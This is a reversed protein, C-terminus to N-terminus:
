QGLLHRGRPDGVPGRLGREYELLEAQLRQAVDPHKDIVNHQETPDKKLDYLEWEQRQLPQGTLYASWSVQAEINRARRHILKWRLTRVGTDGPVSYDLVRHIRNVYDNPMSLRYRFIDEWLPIREFFALAEPDGKGDRM